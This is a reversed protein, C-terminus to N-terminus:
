RSSVSYFSDSYFWFSLCFILKCLIQIVKLLQIARDGWFDTCVYTTLEKLIQWMELHFCSEFQVYSLSALQRELANLKPRTDM